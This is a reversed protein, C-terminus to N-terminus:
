LKLFPVGLNSNGTERSSQTTKFLDQFHPWAGPSCWRSLQAVSTNHLEALTCTGRVFNLLFALFKNFTFISVTTQVSLPNSLIVACIYTNASIWVQRHSSNLQLHSFESGLRGLTQTCDTTPSYLERLPDMCHIHESSDEAPTRGRGSAGSLM